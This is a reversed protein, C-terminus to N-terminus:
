ASHRQGAACEVEGVGSVVCSPSTGRFVEAREPHGLFRVYLTLSCIANPFIQAASRGPDLKM